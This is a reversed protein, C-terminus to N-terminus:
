GSTAAPEAGTDVQTADDKKADQEPDAESQQNVQLSIFVILGIFLFSVFTFAKCFDFADKQTDTWQVM